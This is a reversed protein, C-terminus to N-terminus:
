QPWIHGTGSGTGTSAPPGADLKGRDRLVTNSIYDALATAAVRHGAATWHGDTPFYLHAESPHAAFLPYLDLIPINQEGAIRLITLHPAHRDFKLARLEPQREMLVEFDEDYVASKEPTILLLWPIHHESLLRDFASLSAATAAWARHHSPTLPVRMFESQQPFGHLHEFTSPTLLGVKVLLQAATRNSRLYLQAGYALRCNDYIWYGIGKRATAPNQMAPYHLVASQVGSNYDSESNGKVEFYPKTANDWDATRDSLEISNNFMDNGLFFQVVVMDPRYLLGLERFGVFEETTGQGSVAMNMVEARQGGPRAANLTQETLYAISEERDVQHAEAFSDGLLAIRFAGPPKEVEREIDSWGVSNYRGNTHFESTKNRWTSNPKRFRGILPHDIFYNESVPIQWRAAIEAAAFALLTACAFLALRESAARLASAFGRRTSSPYPKM